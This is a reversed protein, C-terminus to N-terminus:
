VYISIHNKQPMNYQSKSRFGTCICERNRFLIKKNWLISIWLGDSLNVLLKSEERKPFITVSIKDLYFLLAHDFVM